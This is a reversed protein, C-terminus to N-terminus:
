VHTKVKRRAQKVIATAQEKTSQGQIQSPSEENQDARQPVNVDCQTKQTENDKLPVVVVDEQMEPQVDVIEPSNWITEGPIEHLVSVIDPICPIICTEESSERQIERPIGLIESGGHSVRITRVQMKQIVNNTEPIHIEKLVGTAERHTEQQLARQHAPITRPTVNNKRHTM